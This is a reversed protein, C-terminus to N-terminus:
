GRKLHQEHKSLMWRVTKEWGPDGRMLIYITEAISLGANDVWFSPTKEGEKMLENYRVYLEVAQSERTAKQTENFQERTVRQTENFQELTMRQTQKFQEYGYWFAFIAVLAAIITSISAAHTFITGM